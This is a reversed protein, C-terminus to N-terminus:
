PTRAQLRSPSVAPLTAKSGARDPLYMTHLLTL